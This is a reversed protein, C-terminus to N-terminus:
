KKEQKSVLSYMSGYNYVLSREDDFFACSWPTYSFLSKKVIGRCYKRFSLFMKKM